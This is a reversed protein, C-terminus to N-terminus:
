FLYAVFTISYTVVVAAILVIVVAAALAPTTKVVELETGMDTTKKEALGM